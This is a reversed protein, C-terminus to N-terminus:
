ELILPKAVKRNVTLNNEPELMEDWSLPVLRKGKAWALIVGLETEATSLYFWKSDGLSLVRAQVIDGPQFCDEIVLKEVEHKRIDQLRIIGLFPSQLCRGEVSLIHAQVQTFTLKFVRCMVLSGTKPVIQGKHLVSQIDAEAHSSGIVSARYTGDANYTGVGGSGEILEGPFLMIIIHIIGKSEAAEASVFAGFSL